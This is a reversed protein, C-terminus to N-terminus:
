PDPSRTALLREALGREGAAPERVRVALVRWRDDSRLSSQIRDSVEPAEGVPAVFLTRLRVPDSAADIANNHPWRCPPPHDWHGCLEATVAAGVAAPDCGPHLELEAEIVAPRQDSM